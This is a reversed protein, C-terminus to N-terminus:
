QCSETLFINFLRRKVSDSWLLFSEYEEEIFLTKM